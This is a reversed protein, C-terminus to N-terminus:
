GVQPLGGGGQPNGGMEGGAGGMGGEPSPGYGSGAGMPGGASGETAPGTGNSIVEMQGQRAQELARTMMELDRFDPIYPQTDDYGFNRLIREMMNNAGVIFKSMVERVKPIVPVRPDFVIPVLQAMQQGFTVYLQTLTVIGNREAEKTQEPDTPKLRFNFRLPIEEPNISLMEMLVPRDMEPLLNILDREVQDRNRVLQYVVNEAIEGFGQSINESFSQQVQTGQQALFMTGGLTARSKIIQSEQGALYDNYGTFREAMAKIMMERQPISADPGPLKFPMLDDSPKGDTLWVKGPKIEENPGIGSGRRAGMMGVIAMHLSDNYANHMYEMEDQPYECMWAVGMAYLQGPLNFYPIRVIDRKGLDNFESRLIEGTLPHIWVILDEVFGDDDLDWYLHCEHIDYLEVGGTSLGRRQLNEEEEDTLKVRPAELVREVADPDFIGHAVRQTLEHPFLRSITSYWPAKQLNDFYSRTLFDTIRVPTVTPTNRVTQTVQQMGGTLRDRRKFSWKETEWPVKVFQTGLSIGDYLIVNSKPRINIHNKSEMLIDLFKQMVEAKRGDKHTDVAIVDTLPQKKDLMGKNVAYIGNVNSATLPPPSNSADKWPYDKRAMEPRAERQREWKMVKELFEAREEEATAIEGTLYDSIEGKVDGDPIIDSM